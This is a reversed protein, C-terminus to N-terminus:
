IWKGVANMFVRYNEYKLFFFYVIFGVISGFVRGEMERLYELIYSNNKFRKLYMM